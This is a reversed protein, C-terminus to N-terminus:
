GMEKTKMKKGLKKMISDEAMSSEKGMGNSNMAMFKSSKVAPAKNKTMMGARQDMFEDAEEEDMGMSILKSKMKMRRMQDDEYEDDEGANKIEGGGGTGEPDGIESKHKKFMEMMKKDMDDYKGMDEGKEDPESEIEIEIEGSVPKKEVGEKMVKKDTKSEDKEHEEFEGLFQKGMMKILEKLKEAKAKNKMEQIMYEKEKM